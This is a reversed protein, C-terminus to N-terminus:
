LVREIKFQRHNLDVYRWSSGTNVPIDHLYWELFSPFDEWTLEIDEPYFVGSALLEFDLIGLLPWEQSGSVFISQGSGGVCGVFSFTNLTESAFAMESQSVGTYPLAAQWASILGAKAQESEAATYVALGVSDVESGLARADLFRFPFAEPSMRALPLPVACSQEFGQPKSSRLNPLKLTLREALVLTSDVSVLEAVRLACLASMARQFNM